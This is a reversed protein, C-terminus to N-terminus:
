QMTFIKCLIFTQNDHEDQALNDSEFTNDMKTNLAAEPENATKLKKAYTALSPLM